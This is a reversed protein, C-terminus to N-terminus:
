FLFLVINEWSTIKITLLMKELRKIMKQKIDGYDIVFTALCGEFVDKAYPIKANSIISLFLTKDEVM